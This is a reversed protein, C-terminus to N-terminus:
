GFLLTQAVLDIKGKWSEASIFAENENIMWSRHHATVLANMLGCLLLTKDIMLEVIQM